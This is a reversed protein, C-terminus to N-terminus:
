VVVDPTSCAATLAGELLRVLRDVTAAFAAADGTAGTWVVDSAVRQLLKLGAAGMPAILEYACDAVQAADGRRWAATLSALAEGMEDFTLGVTQAGDLDAMLAVLDDIRDHDLHVVESRRMSKVECM